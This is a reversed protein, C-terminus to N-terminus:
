WRRSSRRGEDRGEGEGHGWNGSERKVTRRRYTYTRSTERKEPTKGGDEEIAVEPESGVVPTKVPKLCDQMMGSVPLDIVEGVNEPDVLGRVSVGEACRVGAVERLDDLLNEAM